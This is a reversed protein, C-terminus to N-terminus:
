KKLFTKVFWNNEYTQIKSDKYKLETEYQKKNVEIIKQLAEVQANGSANIQEIDAKVDMFDTLDRLDYVLEFKWKNSYINLDLEKTKVVELPIDTEPNFFEIFSETPKKYALCYDSYSNKMTITYDSNFTFSGNKLIDSRKVHIQGDTISINMYNKLDTFFCITGTDADVLVWQYKNKKDIPKIVIYDSNEEGTIAHTGKDNTLIYLKNPFTGFVIDFKESTLQNRQLFRSTFGARKNM